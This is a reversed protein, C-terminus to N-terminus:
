KAKLAIVEEVAAAKNPLYRGRGEAYVTWPWAIIEQRKAHWRGTETLSIATLLRKPLRNEEEAKEVASRCTDEYEASNQPFTAAVASSNILWFAACGILLSTIRM